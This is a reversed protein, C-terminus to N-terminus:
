KAKDDIVVNKETVGGESEPPMQEFPKARQLLLAKVEDAVDGQIHIEDVGPHQVSQTVSAGTAFRSSLRFYAAYRVRKCNGEASAVPSLIPAPWPHLHDSQAKDSSCAVACNQLGTNRVCRVALQAREKEAKAQAKRERKASDRELSEAQETTLSKLKDSLAEDSYLQAYLEPNKAELNAKCKTLSSGYECYEYPFSCIECYHVERAPVSASSEVAPTAEVEASM